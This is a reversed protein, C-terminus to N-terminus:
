LSISKFYFLKLLFFVSVAATYPISCYSTEDSELPLTKSKCLIKGKEYLKQDDTAYNARIISKLIDWLKNHVVSFSLKTCM